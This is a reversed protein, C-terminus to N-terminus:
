KSSKIETGHTTRLPKFPHLHVQVCSSCQVCEWQVETWTSCSISSEIPCGTTFPNRMTSSPLKLSVVFVTEESRQVSSERTYVFNHTASCLGRAFSSLINIQSMITTVHDRNVAFNTLSHSSMKLFQHVLISLVSCSLVEFHLLELMHPRPLSEM